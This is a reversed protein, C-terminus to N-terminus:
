VKEKINNLVENVIGLANSLKNEDDKALRTLLDVIANGFSEMREAAVEEGEDTLAYWVNRRDGTDRESTILGDEEARRLMTCLNSTSMDSFVALDKLRVRGSMKIRTLTRAYQRSYGGLTEADKIQTAVWAVLQLLEAFRNVLEKKAM